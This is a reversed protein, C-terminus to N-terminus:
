MIERGIRKMYMEITEGWKCGADPASFVNSGYCYASLLMCRCRKSKGEEKDREDWYVCDECLVRDAM